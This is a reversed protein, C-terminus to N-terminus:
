KNLKNEILIRNEIKVAVMAGVVAFALTIIILIILIKKMLKTSKDM